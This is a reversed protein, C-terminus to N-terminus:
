PCKRLEVTLLSGMLNLLYKGFVFASTLEKKFLINNIIKFKVVRPIRGISCLISNALSVTSTEVEVLTTLPRSGYKHCLTHLQLAMFTVAGIFLLSWFLTRSWHTSANIRGFGHASTYDCFDKIFFSLSKSSEKGDKEEGGQNLNYTSSSWTMRLM